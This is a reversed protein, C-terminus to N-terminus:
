PNGILHFVTRNADVGPVPAERNWYGVSYKSVTIGEFVSDPTGTFHCSVVLTGRDGDSYEISLVALGARADAADGIGDSAAPFTGPAKHWSVLAIASYTGSATSVGSSDFTKWTGGGTAANSRGGGPAVFTRSGTLTIKSNDNANASAVGGESVTGSILHIIDWRVKSAQANADSANSFAMGIGLLTALALVGLVVSVLGRKM